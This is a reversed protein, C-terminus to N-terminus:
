GVVSKTPRSRVGQQLENTFYRKERLRGSAYYKRWEGNENGNLYNRVEATDTTNPYLLYITGTFPMKNVNAIGNVLAFNVTSINIKNSSIIADQQLPYTCGCLLIVVSFHIFILLRVGM